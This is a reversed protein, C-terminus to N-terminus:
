HAVAPPPLHDIAGAMPVSQTEAGDPLTAGRPGDGGVYRLRGASQKGVMSHTVSLVTDLQLGRLLRPVGKDTARRTVGYGALTRAHDHQM